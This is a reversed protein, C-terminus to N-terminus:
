RANAFERIKKVGFRRERAVADGLGRKEREDGSGVWEEEALPRAPWKRRTRM